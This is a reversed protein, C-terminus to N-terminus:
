EGERWNWLVEKKRNSTVVLGRKNSLYWRKTKNNYRVFLGHPTKELATWDEDAV